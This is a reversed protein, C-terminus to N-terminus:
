QRTLVFDYQESTSDYYETMVGTFTNGAIHGQFKFVLGGHIIHFVQFSVLGSPYALAYGTGWLYEHPPAPDDLFELDWVEYSYRANGDIDTGAATFVLRWDFDYPPDLIPGEWTGVYLDLLNADGGGGGGCGVALSVCLIGVALIFWRKKM